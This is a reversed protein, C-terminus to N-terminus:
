MFLGFREDMRGECGGDDLVEEDGARGLKNKELEDGKM